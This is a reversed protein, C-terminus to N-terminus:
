AIDAIAHDGRDLFVLLVLTAFRGAHEVRLFARHEGFGRPPPLLADAPLDDAIGDRAGPEANRGLEHRLLGAVAVAGFPARRGAGDLHQQRPALLRVR